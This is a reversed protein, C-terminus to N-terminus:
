PFKNLDVSLDSNLVSGFFKLTRRFGRIEQKKENFRVQKQRSGCIGCIQMM